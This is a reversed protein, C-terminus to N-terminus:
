ERVAELNDFDIKKPKWIRSQLTSSPRPKVEAMEIHQLAEKMNRKKARKIDCDRSIESLLSKMEECATNQVQKPKNKYILHFKFEDFLEKLNSENGSAENM